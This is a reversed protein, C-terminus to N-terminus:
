ESVEKSSQKETVPVLGGATGATAIGPLYPLGGTLNMQSTATHDLPDNDGDADGGEADKSGGGTGTGTEGDKSSVDQKSSGGDLDVNKSGTDDQSDKSASDKSGAEM